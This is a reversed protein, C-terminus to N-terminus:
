RAVPKPPLPDNSVYPTPDVVGAQLFAERREVCTGCTGCHIEGGKYCSWTRTFDVGLRTGEAAIGGKTMAIFPRLLQVGAYTGLRMAEGMAQMFDERCDPYIAHDGGHAAIVLGDAGVSEAFGCAISLMIANRFPVVTQKMIKEEYHGDPIAGGSKLLDSAFMREVFDLRVTEHRVGLAAAQEAALPIERHNHKAGYDFSLAAVVTHERRAWHLATVSDMGGSCLVVVKM